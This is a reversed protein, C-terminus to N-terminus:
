NKNSANSPTFIGMSVVLKIADEVPINLIEIKDKPLILVIGTSINPVTPIFICFDEGFEGTIFGITYGYQFKIKVVGKFVNEKKETIKLVISKVFKFVRNLLPINEFLDEIFNLIKKGLFNNALFGIFFILFILSFFGIGPTYINPFFRKFFNGLINELFVFIKFLVWISISIPVIFIIGAIFHKKLSKM